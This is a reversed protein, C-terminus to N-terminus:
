VGRNWVIHVYTGYIIHVSFLVNVNTNKKQNIEFNYEMTELYMSCSPGTVAAACYINLKVNTWASLYVQTNEKVFLHRGSITHLVSM